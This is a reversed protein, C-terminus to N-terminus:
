EIKVGEEELVQQLSSHPWYKLFLEDNNMKLEHLHRRLSEFTYNIASLLFDYDQTHIKMSGLKTVATKIANAMEDFIVKKEASTKNKLRSEAFEPTTTAAIRFHYTAGILNKVPDAIPYQSGFDGLFELIKYHESDVYTLTCFRKSKGEIFLNWDFEPLKIQM